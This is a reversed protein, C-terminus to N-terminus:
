AASRADFAIGVEHGQDKRTCRVVRGFMNMGREPGHPPFFITIATDVGIPESAIAGLGGMSINLLNLSCIQSRHARSSTPVTQIATVTGNLNHRNPGRRDFPLGGTAPDEVLRLTAPSPM